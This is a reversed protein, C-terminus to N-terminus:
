EQKVQELKRRNWEQLAVFALVGIGQIVFLISSGAASFAELNKAGASLAGFYLGALVVGLPHLLGLLAVPIGLFGWGPSFGDFIYGSVGTYEVGGALGCTAGSVFMAFFQIRTIPVRAARAARANSGVLRFQFGSVTKSLWFWTLIALAFAIFVGAHLDTQTDFRKFMVETPLTASQPISKTPEQLPGRVFYNLSYIAIFNLLITSIVINVGRKFFLLSAISAFTGGLVTSALLIIFLLVAPHFNPFLAFMTAGAIAGSLLQGEGGINFMGAKWSILLGLGVIILPTSKVLTRHIGFKDGFAGEFLLRFSEIIPLGFLILSLALIALLGIPIIIYFWYIKM